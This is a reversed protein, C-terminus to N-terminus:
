NILLHWVDGIYAFQGGGLKWGVHLKLATFQAKDTEFKKSFCKFFSIKAEVKSRRGTVGQKLRVQRVYQRTKQSKRTFGFLECKDYTSNQRAGGEQLEKSLDYKDYM